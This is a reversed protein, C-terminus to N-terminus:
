KRLRINGPLEHGLKEFELTGDQLMFDYLEDKSLVPGDSRLRISIFHSDLIKRRVVLEQNLKQDLLLKTEIRDAVSEFAPFDSDYSELSAREAFQSLHWEIGFLLRKGVPKPLSEAESDVVTRVLTLFDSLISERDEAQKGEHISAQIRTKLRDFLEVFADESLPPGFDLILRAIEYVWAQRVYEKAGTKVVVLLAEEYLIELDKSTKLQSLELAERYDSLLFDLSKSSFTRHFLADLSLRESRENIQRYSAYQSMMKKPSVGLDGFRRQRLHELISDSFQLRLREIWENEIRDFRRPAGYTKREEELAVEVKEHLRSREMNIELSEAEKEFLSTWALHRILDNRNSGSANEQLIREAYRDLDSILFIEHDVQLPSWSLDVFGNRDRREHLTKALSASGKSGFLPEKFKHRDAGFYYTARIAVMLDHKAGSYWTYRIEPGLSFSSTVELLYGIGIQTLYNEIYSAEVSLDGPGTRRSIGGSLAFRSNPFQRSEFLGLGELWATWLGSKYVFGLSLLEDTSLGPKYSNGRFMYSATVKLKKGINKTLRISYSDLSEASWDGKSSEFVSFEIKDLFKFFKDDLALTFGMVQDIEVSSHLPSLQELPMKTFDQGFAMRHKGVIFAVPLGAISSIQVYATHFFEEIEFKNNKFVAEAAEGQERFFLALRTKVVVKIQETLDGSWTLDLDRMRLDDRFDQQLGLGLDVRMRGQIKFRDSKDFQAHLCSVSVLLLLLGRRLYAWVLGIMKKEGLENHV